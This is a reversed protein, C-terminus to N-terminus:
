VNEWDEKPEVLPLLMIVEDIDRHGCHMAILHHDNLPPRKREAIYTWGHCMRCKIENPSTHLGFTTGKGNCRPCVRSGAPIDSPQLTVM